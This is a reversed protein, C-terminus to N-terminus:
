TWRGKATGPHSKKLCEGGDDPSTKLAKQRRPEAARVVTLTRGMGLFVFGVSHTSLDIRRLLGGLRYDQRQRDARHLDRPVLSSGKTLTGRLFARNVHSSIDM